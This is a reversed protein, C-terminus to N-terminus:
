SLTQMSVSIVSGTGHGFVDKLETVIVCPSCYKYIPRKETAELREQLMLQLSKPSLKRQICGSWLVFLHIQPIEFFGHEAVIWHGRPLPQMNQPNQKTSSM